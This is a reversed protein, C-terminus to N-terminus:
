AHLATVRSEYNTIPFTWLIFRLFGDSKVVLRRLSQALFPTFAVIGIIAIFATERLSAALGAMALLSPPLSDRKLRSSRALPQKKQFKLDQIQFLM